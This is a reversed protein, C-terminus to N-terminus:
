RFLQCKRLSRWRQTFTVLGGVAIPMTNMWSATRPDSGLGLPASVSMSEVLHLISPTGSALLDCFNMLSLLSDSDDTGIIRIDIGKPLHLIM